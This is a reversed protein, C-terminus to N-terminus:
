LRPSVIDLCNLVRKLLIKGDFPKTLFDNAQAEFLQQLTAGDDHGSIFLIPLRRWRQDTRVAQCLEIGSFAPMEVDLVLADPQVQELVEWFRESESLCTLSVTHSLDRLDHELRRLCGSDDDVVLLRLPPSQSRSTLEAAIAWLDAIPASRVGFRDAGLRHAQIRSDLDDSTALAFISWHPRERAMQLWSRAQQWDLPQELDLWIVLPENAELAELTPLHQSLDERLDERRDMFAQEISVQEISAQTLSAQTLSAQEISLNSLHAQLRDRLDTDPTLLWHRCPNLVSQEAGSANEGARQEVEEDGYGLEEMMADTMQEIHLLEQRLHSVLPQILLLSAPTNALAEAQQQIERSLQSLTELGFSGLGGKLTHAERRLNVLAQEREEASSNRPSEYCALAAEMRDIRALYERQTIKWAATLDAALGVAPTSPAAPTATEKVQSDTAPSDTKPSDTKPSDTAPSVIDPSVTKIVSFQESHPEPPLTIAAAPAERLRYGLGRITEIMDPEGASKLKRRLEKIHTRVATELPADEFLWLRDLLAQASFIRQPNRLLLELLEYEKATVALRTGGCSVQTLGPDLQLTGWSLVPQATGSQRRLLARIRALLEQTNFPKVLYDDAGADLATVKTAQEESATLLLIPTADRRSRLRQCVQVGDMDPLQLDLLLLEYTSFELFELGQQGTLAIDVQYHAQGLVSRLRASFAEDDDVLLIKM